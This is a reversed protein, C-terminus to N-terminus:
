EAPTSRWPKQPELPATQLMLLLRRRLNMSLNMAM